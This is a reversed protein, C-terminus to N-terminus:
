VYKKTETQKRGYVVKKDISDGVLVSFIDETQTSTGADTPDPLCINIM